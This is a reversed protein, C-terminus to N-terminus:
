DPADFQELYNAAARLRDPDDKFWSLGYNCFYCLLGRIKKTSHDHDVNLRRESPERGCIMCEEGYKEVLAPYAAALWARRQEKKEKKERWEPECESCVRGRLNAFYRVAGCSKCTGRKSSM